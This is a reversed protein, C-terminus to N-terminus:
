VVPDLGVLWVCGFLYLIFVFLGSLIKKAVVSFLDDDPPSPPLPPVRLDSGCYRCKIAEDLIEEACYPCKKTNGMIASRYIPM